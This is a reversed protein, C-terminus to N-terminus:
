ANENKKYKKLKTILYRIALKQLTTAKKPLMDYITGKGLRLTETIQKNNMGLPAILQKFTIEEIFIRKIDDLRVFEGILTYDEGQTLQYVEFYHDKAKFQYGNEHLEQTLKRSLTTEKM